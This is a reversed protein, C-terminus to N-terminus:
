LTRLALMPDVRTARRAPLYAALLATTVLVVAAAAFVRPDSVSSGYLLSRLIRTLVYSAVLGAVVGWGVMVLASHMVLRIVAPGSAGLAIRVGIERTRETVLHAVLGYLGLAAIALAFFALVALVVTNARLPALQSGLRDEISTLAALPVGPVVEHTARRVAPMLATSPGRTRLAFALMSTPAQTLPRYMAPHYPETPALASLRTAGVVGVITMWATANSSPVFRVRRGVANGEPFLRNATPESIIAVPPDSPGDATTFARGHLVPIGQVLFEDPSVGEVSPPAIGVPIVNSNGEVLLGAYDPQDLPTGSLSAAVVGPIQELRGLVAQALARQRTPTDIGAGRGYLFGRIVGEKAMGMDRTAADAFTRVLLGAGTLLVLTCAVEAGVLLRRTATVERGGSYHGGAARADSGKAMRTLMLAPIVSFLLCAVSTLAAAFTLVRGDIAFTTWYPIGREPLLLRAVATGWHAVLIGVGGGLGAVIVGEAVHQRLLAARPAGLAWRLAIEHRRGSLRALFLGALNACAVLATFLVAGLLILNSSALAQAHLQRLGTVRSRWLPPAVDSCAGRGDGPLAGAFLVDLQSRLREPSARSGVRALVTYFRAGGGGTSRAAYPGMPIFFQSTMASADFIPRGVAASAPMIGIVRFLRRGLMISRNLIATDGGFRGQWISQSLVVVDAANPRGDDAVFARGLLPRLGLLQFFNTTVISGEVLETAMPTAVSAQYVRLGALAVAAGLRPQWERLESLTTGAECSSRCTPRADVREIAFLEWPNEYPLRSLYVANVVSFVATSVGVSLAVLLVAILTFGPTRRLKRLAFRFDRWTLDLM